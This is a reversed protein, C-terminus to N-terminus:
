FTKGMLALSKQKKQRQIRETSVKDHINKSVHTCTFLKKNTNKEWSGKELSIIESCKKHRTITSKDLWMTPYGPNPCIKSVYLM